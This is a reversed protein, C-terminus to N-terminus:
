ATFREGEGLIYNEIQRLKWRYYFHIALFVLVLAGGIVFPEPDNPNVDGVLSEAPEQELFTVPAAGRRVADDYQSRPVYFEKRYTKVDDPARYDLVVRYITKGKATTMTGHDVLKADVRLGRQLIDAKRRSEIGGVVFLGLGGILALWKLWSLKRYLQPYFRPPPSVFPDSM